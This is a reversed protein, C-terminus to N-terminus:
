PGRLYLASVSPLSSPKVPASHRRSRSRVMAGISMVLFSRRANKYAAPSRFLALWARVPWVLWYRAAWPKARAAGQFASLILRAVQYRFPLGIGFSVTLCTPPLLSLICRCVQRLLPPADLRLFPNPSCPRRCGAAAFGTSYLGFLCIFGTITSGEARDRAQM